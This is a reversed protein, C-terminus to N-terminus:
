SSIDFITELGDSVSIQIIYSGAEANTPTGSLEDAPLLRLEVLRAASRRKELQASFSLVDGADIDPLIAKVNFNYSSRGHPEPRSPRL